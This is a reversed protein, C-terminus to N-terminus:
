DIDQIEYQPLNCLKLYFACLADPQMAFDVIVPFASLLTYPTLLGRCMLPDFGFSPVAVECAKVLTGIVFNKFFDM